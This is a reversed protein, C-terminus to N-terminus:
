KRSININNKEDVLSILEGNEVVIKGFSKIRGKSIYKFSYNKDKKIQIYKNKAVYINGDELTGDITRKLIEIIFYKDKKYKYSKSKKNVTFKENYFLMNKKGLLFKAVSNTIKIDLYNQEVTNIDRIIGLKLKAYSITYNAFLFNTIFLLLLLIRM